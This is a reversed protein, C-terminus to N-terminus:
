AYKKLTESVIKSQSEIFMIEDLHFDNERPELSSYNLTGFVESNLSIPSGIYARLQRSTYCPHKKM